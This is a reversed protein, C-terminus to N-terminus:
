PASVIEVVIGNLQAMGSLPELADPGTRALLNVNQGNTASAVRLGDADQHGWGHPLAVAGPMMDETIAVPLAISGVESRVMAMDGDRLGAALADEPHMYVYNTTHRGRVFRPVNHMWSNHSLPERKSILKLRTRQTLEREYADPLERALAVLDRPALQVRGDDTVVRTGLFTGGAHPPRLVGHPTARHSRRSGQRTARLVVDLLREHTLGVTAGFGPVRGLQQWTRLVTALGRSGFLPADCAHALQLLIDVEDRQEGEPPLVRESYQMFPTPSAGMFSQFVFPINPRQLATTGPLVYHALQGTETRFIDVTVLLELERLARTLRGGANPVSLVPNGSLVFLGRVQGPGPTLIEDAMIGAPFSDVCSPLDGVRSRDPRMTNGAKRLTRMLDPVIPQGVLTGGARDLNGTIANIVEQLWFALTGHSGQNVGTSCFLAAGDAALYARVLERLVDPAIGTVQATKEPPWARALPELTAFGSMHREVHTRDVGHQLVEHLFSLYFFVDTDPRIFVQEGLQRASETRRPNVFVVRGGRRVIAELRRVPDPLHIFSMRSVVPNSGVCVLLSTRDVDPYPQVFPFGYMRQAVVFKNNCDQSGTQFFNKTGLGQAFGAALMPALFSFSIPNGLYVSLADAGHAERLARAKDGIERLAQEWSIRVFEAGVRKQPYVLRDPSHQVERMALGKVCAYGRSAVHDRDPEIRAIRGREVHVALGCTAECINCTTYHVPM